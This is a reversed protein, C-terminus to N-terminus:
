RALLADVEAATPISPSAGPKTVALAGAGIARRIADPRTEGAALAAALHGAFADGAATTDVAQVPLADFHQEDSATVLVAGASALTVLAAGAGREVLARGAAVAGARDQVALGTLLAAETENPTVIDILPWLADDLAAAPAPDLIVLIGADHARRIAHAVVPLPSELQTLLVAPAEALAADVQAETLRANARPVVVIDNEGTADVRIHAVGTGVDALARVATTDVGAERLQRAVLEGFADDGVCGVIRAVAGARAVAIAQNAGKGGLVLTFEDGLITEGRAPVRQSFTTLDASISGVILVAPELATM